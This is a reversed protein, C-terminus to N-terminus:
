NKYMFELNDQNCQCKEAIEVAKIQLIVGEFEM